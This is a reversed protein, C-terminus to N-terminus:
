VAKLVRMERSICSRNLAEKRGSGNVIQQTLFCPYRGTGLRKLGQFKNKNGYHTQKRPGLAKGEQSLQVSVWINLTLVAIHFQKDVWGGTIDM